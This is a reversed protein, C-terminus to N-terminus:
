QVKDNPPLHLDENFMNYVMVPIGSDVLEETIIQAITPWFGGALGSGLPPCHISVDKEISCYWAVQGFCKRLAEYRIPPIGDMWCVDHQAVMNVVIINNEVTVFQVEGLEHPKTNGKKIYESRVAPWKKFLALAVGAGMKNADNVVHCILKLGEGRPERVDAVLDPTTSFYTIM